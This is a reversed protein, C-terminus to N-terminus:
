GEQHRQAYEMLLVTLSPENEGYARDMQDELQEWEGASMDEFRQYGLFFLRRLGFQVARAAAESGVEHWADLVQDPHTYAASGPDDFHVHLGHVWGGHDSVGKHMAAVLFHVEWPALGSKLGEMSWSQNGKNPDVGVKRWLAECVRSVTSCHESNESHRDIM